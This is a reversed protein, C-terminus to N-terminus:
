ARSRSIASSSPTTARGRPGCHRMSRRSPAASNPSPMSIGIRRASAMSMSRQRRPRRGRSAPEAAAGHLAGPGRSRRLESVLHSSTGGAAEDREGVGTEGRRGGCISRGACARPGSPSRWRAAKGRRPMPPSCSRWCWCETRAPSCRSKRAKSAARSIACSRRCASITTSTSSRIAGARPARRRRWPMAMAPRAIPRCRMAATSIPM